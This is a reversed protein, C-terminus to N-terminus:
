NITTTNKSHIWGKYALVFAMGTIGLSFLWSYWPVYYEAFFAYKITFYTGWAGVYSMIYTSWPAYAMCRYAALGALVIFHIGIWIFTRGMFRGFGGWGPASPANVTSVGLLLSLLGLVAMSAAM